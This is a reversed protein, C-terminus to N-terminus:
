LTLLVAEGHAAKKQPLYNSRENIRELSNAHQKCIGLWLDILQGAFFPTCSNLTVVPSPFSGRLRSNVAQKCLDNCFCWDCYGLIVPHVAQVRKGWKEKQHQRPVSPGTARSLRLMLFFIMRALHGPVLVGNLFFTNILSIFSWCTWWFIEKMEKCLSYVM